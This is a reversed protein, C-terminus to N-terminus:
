HLELTGTDWAGARGSSQGLCPREAPAFFHCLGKRSSPPSLVFLKGSARIPFDKRTGAEGSQPSLQFYRPGLSARISDEEELGGAKASEVQKQGWLGSCDQARLRMAENKDPQPEGM